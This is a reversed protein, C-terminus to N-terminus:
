LIRKKEENMQTQAYLQESTIAEYKMTESKVKM